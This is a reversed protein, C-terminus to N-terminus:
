GIFEEASTPSVIDIRSPGTRNRPSINSKFQGKLANELSVKETLSTKGDKYQAQILGYDVFKQIIGLIYPYSMLM